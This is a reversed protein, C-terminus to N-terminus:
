GDNIQNQCNWVRRASELSKLLASFGRVQELLATTFHNWHNQLDVRVIHLPPSRWNQNSNLIRTLSSLLVSCLHLFADIQRCDTVFTLHQRAVIQWDNLTSTKKEASRSVPLCEKFVPLVSIKCKKIHHVSMVPPLLQSRRSCSACM